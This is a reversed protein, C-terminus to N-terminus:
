IVVLYCSTLSCKLFKSHNLWINSYKIANIFDFKGDHNSIDDIVTFYKAGYLKKNRSLDTGFVDFGYASAMIAFNGMGFGFDLIRPSYSLNNPFLSCINNLDEVTTKARLRRVKLQESMGIDSAIWDEYIRNLLYEDPIQVQYFCCDDCKKIEFIANALLHKDQLYAESYFEILYDNLKNDTYKVSKIRRVVKSGCIPCNLRKKFNIAM